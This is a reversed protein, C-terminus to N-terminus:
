CDDYVSMIEKLERLVLAKENEDFTELAPLTAGSELEAIYGRVASCGDNCLQELAHQIHQPLPNSM